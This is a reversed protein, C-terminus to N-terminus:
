SDANPDSTSAGRSTAADQTDHAEWEKHSADKMTSDTSGHDPAWGHNDEDVGFGIKDDASPEAPAGQEPVGHEPNTQESM